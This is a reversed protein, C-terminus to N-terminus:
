AHTKMFHERMRALTKKRKERVEESEIQPEPAHVVYTKVSAEMLSEKPQELVYRVGWANGRKERISVIPKGEKRLEEIRATIRPSITNILDFSHVGSVGATKLAELVRTRQTRTRM